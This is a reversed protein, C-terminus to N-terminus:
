LPPVVVEGSFPDRMVPAGAAASRRFPDKLDRPSARGASPALAAGGVGGRFPDKLDPPNLPGATIWPADGAEGALAGTPARGRFPDKLDPATGATPLAGAAASPRQVPVWTGDPAQVMAVGSRSASGSGPLTVRFPDKLDPPAAGPSGGLSPAVTPNRFPDQLDTPARMPTPALWQAAFPDRLDPAVSFQSLTGGQVATAVRAAVRTAELPLALATVAGLLVAAAVPALVHSSRVTPTRVLAVSAGCRSPISRV